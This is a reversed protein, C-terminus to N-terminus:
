LFQKIPSQDYYIDSQSLLNIELHSESFYFLICLFIINLHLRNLFIKIVFVIFIIWFGSDLCLHHHYCQTTTHEGQSQNLIRLDGPPSQDRTHKRTERGAGKDATSAKGASCTTSWSAKHGTFRIVSLSQRAEDAPYHCVNDKWTPNTEESRLEWLFATIFNLPKTTESPHCLFM